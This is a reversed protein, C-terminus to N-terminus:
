KIGRSQFLTKIHPLALFYKANM